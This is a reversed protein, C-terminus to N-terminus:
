KKEKEKAKEQNLQQLEKKLSSLESRLKEMIKKEDLVSHDRPNKRASQKPDTKPFQDVPENLKDVIKKKAAAAKLKMKQFFSLKKKPKPSQRQKKQLLRKTRAHSQKLSEISKDLQKAVEPSSNKRLEQLNYLNAAFAIEQKKLLERDGDSLGSLNKQDTSTEKPYNRLNQSALNELRNLSGAISVEVLRQVKKMEDQNFDVGAKQAEERALELMKQLRPMEAEISKDLMQRVGSISLDTAKDEARKTLAEKQKLGWARFKEAMKNLQKSEEQFEESELFQQFKKEFDAAYNQGKDMLEKLQKEDPLNEKLFNRLNKGGEQLSNISTSPSDSKLLKEKLAKIEKELLEIRTASDTKATAEKTVTKTQRSDSQQNSNKSQNTAKGEQTIKGEQTTQTFGHQPVSLTLLSFGAILFFKNM